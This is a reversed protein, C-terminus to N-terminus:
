CTVFALDQCILCLYALRQYCALLLVFDSNPYLTIGCQNLRSRRLRWKRNQLSLQSMVDSFLSCTVSHLCIIYFVKAINFTSMQEQEWHLKLIQHIVTFMHLLDHGEFGPNM